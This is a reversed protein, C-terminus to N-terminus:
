RHPVRGHRADHQLLSVRDLEHDLLQEALMMVSFVRSQDTASADAAMGMAAEFLLADRFSWLRNFTEAIQVTDTVTRQVLWADRAAGSAAAGCGPLTSWAWDEKKDPNGHQM